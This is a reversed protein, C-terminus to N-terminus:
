HADYAAQGVLGGTKASLDFNDAIFDTIKEAPVTDAFVINPGHNDLFVVKLSHGEGLDIEYLGRSTNAGCEHSGCENPWQSRVPIQALHTADTRVPCHFHAINTEKHAAFIQRQSQGGVSPRAGYAIVENEGISAVRVLGVNGLENFNSKRISTLIETDSIKVAFHGATKGLVPKYAGNAICYDVVRRLNEPVLDSSWPVTPAAVVTSRTFHNQMRSLMMRMLFALTADRDRGAAYHTEEPAVVMSHFALLDSSLVLNISNRKLLELARTYQASQALGMSTSAAVLYLDKRTSRISHLLAEDQVQMGVFLAKVQPDNIFGPLMGAFSEEDTVYVEIGYLLQADVMAEKLKRIIDVSNFGTDDGVVIIKQM